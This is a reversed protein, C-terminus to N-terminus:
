ILELGLLLPSTTRQIVTVLALSLFEQTERSLAAGGSMALRLRGGTAQKIKSFVLSDVVNKVVPVNAKKVTMAGNFMSKRFSGSNNVQALIGPCFRTGDSLEVTAHVCCYLGPSFLRYYNVCMALDTLLASQGVDLAFASLAM